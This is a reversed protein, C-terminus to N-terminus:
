PKGRSERTRPDLLLVLVDAILNGMVLLFSCAVVCGALLYLDNNFLADYTIRGLGPWAFLVELVLSGSLVGGLIPGSTSLVPNLSPRILHRLIIKQRSLGRAMASRLHRSGISSRIASFQIREAAALVPVMLCAAPLALHHLRDFLWNLYSVPHIVNSSMGGLPFWRTQAALLLALIGLVLSPLSLMFGSLFSLSRGLTGNQHIGHLTGLMVGGGLGLILAPIGLWLTKALSGLVVPFVPERYLLSYGMDLKFSSRLWHLYQLLVPQDLGYQRRLQVITDHGASPDLFRSSFYDGPLWSSLVFTALTVLLSLLVLEAM